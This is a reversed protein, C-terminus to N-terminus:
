NLLPQAIKLTKPELIKERTWEDTKAEYTVSSSPMEQHTDTSKGRRRRRSAETELDSSM